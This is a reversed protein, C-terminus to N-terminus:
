TDEETLRGRDELLIEVASKDSKWAAAVEQALREFEDWAAEADRNEGSKSDNM